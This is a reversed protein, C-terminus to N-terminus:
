FQKRANSEERYDINMWKEVKDFEGQNSFIMVNFKGENLLSYIRDLKDKNYSFFLKSGKLIDKPSYNIMDVVNEAANYESITNFRFENYKIQKVDNYFDESPGETQLFLLYSFVAELVSDIKEYGLDTLTIYM